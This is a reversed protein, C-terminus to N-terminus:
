HLSVRKQKKLERIEKKLEQFMQLIAQENLTFDQQSFETTAISCAYQWIELIEAVPIPYPEYFDNDPRVIVADNEM